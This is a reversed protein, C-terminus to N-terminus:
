DDAYWDYAQDHNCGSDGSSYDKYGSVSDNTGGFYADYQAEKEITAQEESLVASPNSQAGDAKASTTSALFFGAAGLAVALLAFISVSVLLIRKIKM